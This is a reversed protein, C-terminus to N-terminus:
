SGRPCTAKNHGTAGCVSCKYVRKNKPRGGLPVNNAPHVSLRGRLSHTHPMGPNPTSCTSRLQRLSDQLIDFVREDRSALSAYPAFQAMLDTYSSSPTSPSSVVSETERSIRSRQANRMYRSGIDNATLLVDTNFVHRCPVAVQPALRRLACFPCPQFDKEQQFAILEDAIIALARAGIKPLDEKAICPLEAYRATTAPVSQISSVILQRATVVLNKTLQSLTLRPFGFQQKFMGFFGEVRNTTWDDAVGVQLLQTPLWNDTYEVMWELIQRGQCDDSMSNITTRLFDVYEACRSVDTQISYFGKIIDSDKNFYKALDKGLHRHCFVVHTSPFIERVAALQAASRNSVIVRPSQGSMDKLDKFFSAYAITDQGSLYGFGYVQTKSEEDIVLALELRMDYINTSATDDIIMIDESYSCEAITIHLVSVRVLRGDTGKTVKAVFGKGQLENLLDDISESKSDRIVTRRINYFIDPTTIVDLNTRIQGPLLNLKQQHQIELVEDRTHCNSHAEVFERDVRHNHRWEATVLSVTGDDNM